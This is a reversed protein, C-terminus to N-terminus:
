NILDWSLPTGRKADQRLRKGKVREFEAPLLGFGPRIVRINDDSLMDGAKLDCTIYISRRFAKSKEEAKSAGYLVTGLSQWARETEVVM